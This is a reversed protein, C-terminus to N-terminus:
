AIFRDAHKEAFTIKYCGIIGPCLVKREYPRGFVIFDCRYLVPKYRRDALTICFNYRSVAAFFCFAFDAYIQAIIHGFKFDAMHRLVARTYAKIRCEIDVCINKEVSLFIVAFAIGFDCVAVNQRVSVARNRCVCETRRSNRYFGVPVTEIVRKCFLCEVHFHEVVYFDICNNGYVAIRVRRFQKFEADNRTKRPM